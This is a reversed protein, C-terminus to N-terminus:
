FHDMLGPVSYVPMVRTHKMDHWVDAIFHDESPVAIVRGVPPEDRRFEPSLTPLSEFDQALHWVDLSQPHNSRFLGCVTAPKYRYEAWREQYGFALDDVAPDGSYYLESNKVVQEGLHQFVPWYFDYRSKRTWMKHLGQQYTLNSRISILTMLIAHEDWSKTFGAQCLGTQVASLSGQPDDTTAVTSAVPNTQMVASGGGLYEPRFQRRDDTVVNFHALMIEPFRVGSRADRELLRQIQIGTRLDNITIGEQSSLDAYLATVWWQLRDPGTGPGGGEFNVTNGEGTELQLAGTQGTDNENVFEPPYSESRVPARDGLPITVADGRQAWPLCSTFYDKRKMRRLITQNGTASDTDLPEDVNQDRYWETWILRYARFPLVSVTVNATPGSGQGMPLGFYDAVRNGTIWNAADLDVNTQPVSYNDPSDGLYAQEGMLNNWDSMVLRNAVSFHHIDIYLSDMIPKLPTAMRVFATTKLSVTDGPLIEDLLCPYLRGAKPLSSKWGHSRDFTSRQTEAAPLTQFQGQSITASPQQVIKEPM